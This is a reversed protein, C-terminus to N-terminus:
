EKCTGESALVTEAAGAADPEAVETEAGEDADAASSSDASAGVTGTDGTSGDTDGTVSCSQLTRERNYTDILHQETRKFIVRVSRFRIYYCLSDNM